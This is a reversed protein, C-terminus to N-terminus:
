SRSRRVTWLKEKPSLAGLRCGTAVQRSGARCARRYVRIPRLPRVTLEPSRRVATFPSDPVPTWTDFHQRRPRVRGGGGGRRRRLRGGAASPRVGPRARTRPPRLGVAALLRELQDLLEREVESIVSRRRGAADVAGLHDVRRPRAVRRDDADDDGAVARHPVRDLRDLPARGVEDGLRKVEVLQHVDDCFAISCRCSRESFAYRRDCSSSRYWNPPM